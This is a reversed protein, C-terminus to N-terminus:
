RLLTTQARVRCRWRRFTGFRYLAPPLLCDCCACHRWPLVATDMCHWCAVEVWRRAPTARCFCARSVRGALIACASFYAISPAQYLRSLDGHQTSLCAPAVPSKWAPTRRFYPLYLTTGSPACARVAGGVVQPAPIAQQVNGSIKRRRCLIDEMHVPRQAWVDWTQRRILSSFLSHPSLTRRDLAPLRMGCSCTKLLAGQIPM